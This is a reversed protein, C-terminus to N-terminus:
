LQKLYDPRVNRAKWYDSLGIGEVLRQFRPDARMPAIPPIFLWPAFRWATSKVPTNAGRGSENSGGVAFFANAIEFATDIEGLASMVM